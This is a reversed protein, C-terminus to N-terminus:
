LSAKKPGTYDDAVSPVIRVSGSQSAASSAVTVNTADWATVYLNGKEVWVTAPAIGLGHAVNSTVGPTGNTPGVALSVGHVDSLVDGLRPKLFNFFRKAKATLAM